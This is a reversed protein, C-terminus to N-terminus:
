EGVLDQGLVGLRVGPCAHEVGGMAVDMRRHEHRDAGLARHLAQQGVRHLGKPRLYDEVVGIVKLHAGARLGDGLEAAHVLEHVPVAGDEGVRSAELHEGVAVKHLEGVAAHLKPGVVVVAPVDEPRGLVVHGDGLAQPRVDAHLEVLAHTVRRLAVLHLPGDLQRATPGVPAKRGVLAGVLREEADHLAAHMHVQTQAGQLVELRAAVEGAVADAAVAHALVVLDHELGQGRQDRLVHRAVLGAIEHAHAIGGREHAGHAAAHVHEVAHQGGAGRAGAGREGVEPAHVHLVGLVGVVVAGDVLLARARHARAAVGAAIDAM